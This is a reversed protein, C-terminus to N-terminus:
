EVTVSKALNRPQDVDNGRLRAVHYAFLQLPIVSLVPALLPDTAPIELLTDVHPRVADATVATAVGVVEAGRARVQQINNVIKDVLAPQTALAVVLVGPVVLALTGHKLEGGALAESHIYSIEKFKLSGEMAVPFDFGRGVFFADEVTHLREALRVIEPELRLVAQSQSPLARLGRILSTVAPAPLTGRAQGFAGAFMALAALQTVYAKTSCVAIEPGARTYLVDSAERALTSGVVNAVAVTRAGRARAERAAAITDATEGSQSIALAITRPGALPNRYRFESALDAEAPVRALQEILLRGVLGAHYATGCAILWVKDIERAAEPTWRVGDLSMRADDPLRGMMTEQLVRPQEHIEKLMFHAYGGKEAAAADWTIRMPERRVPGGGIRSLRAEYRTIVAIEGDEVIVVDRTYPLLATADSALVMEGRGLGIVLPSIMRVAVIKDPEDAALVVLAYAGTAQSVAREVAAPLDGQYAEEILHALVETDTDSKFTHGRAVLASRLELFNEIIGNHIVVIRGRCDAHPHANDDSPHGHTAWRTHGIGVFGHVPSRDILDALRGIKGATKRIEIGAGNMVALGASDYGRYELRRLGDMLVPVAPRDGIYGMIGCM